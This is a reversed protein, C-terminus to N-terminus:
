FSIVGMDGIGVFGAWFIPNERGDGGDQIFARKTNALAADKSQGARLNKYFMEMFHMTWADDVSWLATVVSRAGAYTFARTLGIIGEGHRLEGLGTRCASLVVMDACLRLNYVERAYLWENELSGGLAEFFALYSYDGNRDDASSHLATHVIRFYQATDCFLRKTADEGTFIQGGIIKQITLIEEDNYELASHGSRSPIPLFSSAASPTDGDYTPAMGLFTQTARGRHQRDRMERLLAASYCYSIDRELVWYKYRTMKIPDAPRERLLAEFPLYALIGDPIIIVRDGQPILADVPLLLRVFLDHAAQAFRERCDQMDALASGQTYWDTMGSRMELVWKELPFDRPIEVVKCDNKQLVFVFITSDGTFYTLMTEGSQLLDRQVSTVDESSHKYKLNYYRPYERDIYALLLTQQAQLRVKEPSNTVESLLERLHREATRISDPVDSFHLADTEKITSYLMRGKSQEVYRYADSVSFHAKNKKYVDQLIHEYFGRSDDLFDLKSGPSELRLHATNLCSDARRLAEMCKPLDGKLQYAKSMEQFTLFGERPLLLSDSQAREYGNARLSAEFYSLAVDPRAKQLMAQGLYRCNDVVGSGKGDRISRAISMSREAYHICTDPQKNQLAMWAISRYAASLLSKNPQKLHLLASLYRKRHVLASDKDGQFAFLNAKQEIHNVRYDDDLVRVKTISDAVAYTEWAEKMKGHVGYSYALNDYYVIRVPMEKTIKRAYEVAKQHYFLARDFDQKVLYMDGLNTCITPVFHHQPAIELLIQLAELRMSIAKEIQWGGAFLGAYNNLCAAYRISKGGYIKRVMDNHLQQYAGCSDMNGLYGWSAALNDYLDSRLTDLSAVKCFSLGKHFLDIARRNEHSERQTKGIRLYHAASDRPAQALATVAGSLLLICLIIRM